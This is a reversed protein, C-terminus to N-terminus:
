YQCLEDMKAKSIHKKIDSRPLSFWAFAKAGFDRNLLKSKVQGVKVSLNSNYWGGGVCYSFTLTSKRGALDILRWETLPIGEHHYRNTGEISWIKGDFWRNQYGIIKKDVAENLYAISYQRTNSDMREVKLQDAAPFKPGLVDGNKVDVANESTFYSSKNSSQNQIYGYLYVAVLGLFGFIILISKSQKLTLPKADLMVGNESDSPPPDQWFHGITFLAILIVVFFIWGYVLHDFGTAAEVNGWHAIMIILYVRIGNAVIPIVLGMVIFAVRKYTKEMYTFAYFVAVTFTSILFNIGSCAEAVRFDAAPISLYWGNRLVSVGSMQLFFVSMDATISQLYPILFDGVPVAFFVLVLPARYHWAIAFGYCVVITLPILAIIATQQVVNLMALHGVLLMFSWVGVLLVSWGIGLPNAGSTPWPKQKAMIAALPLVFAGHMYTDTTAWLLIMSWAADWSVIFTSAFLSLVVLWRKPTFDNGIVSM